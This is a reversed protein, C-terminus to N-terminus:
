AITNDNHKNDYVYQPRRTSTYRYGTHAYGRAALSINVSRSTHTDDKRLLWALRRQMTGLKVSSGRLSDEGTHAYTKGRAYEWNADYSNHGLPGLGQFTKACMTCLESVIVVHGILLFPGVWGKSLHQANFTQSGFQTYGIM